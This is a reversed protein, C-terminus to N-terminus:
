MSSIGICVFCVKFQLIYQQWIAPGLWEESNEAFHVPSLPFFWKALLVKFHM